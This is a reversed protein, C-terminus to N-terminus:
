ADSECSKSGLFVYERDQQLGVWEFDKWTLHYKSGGPGCCYDPTAWEAGEIRIEEWKGRLWKEIEVWGELGQEYGMHQLLLRLIFIAKESMTLFPKLSSTVQPNPGLIMALTKILTSLSSLAKVNM